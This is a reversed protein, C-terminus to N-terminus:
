VMGAFTLAEGSSATKETRLRTFDSFILLQHEPLSRVDLVPMLPIQESAEPRDATVLYAAGQAIVCFHESDFTNVVRSRDTFHGSAFIGIWTKGSATVKLWLGDHEPRAKPPPIYILPVSFKGTGPFERVEEVEYSRPLALDIELL